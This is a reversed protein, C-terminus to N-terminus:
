SQVEALERTEDFDGLQLEPLEPLNEATEVALASLSTLQSIMAQKRRSLLDQEHRMQRRRWAFEQRAREDITAAQEQARAVIAAAEDAAALKVREAEALTEARLRAIQETEDTVHEASVASCDPRRASCPRPTPSRM